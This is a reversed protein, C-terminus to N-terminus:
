KKVTACSHQFSVVEVEVQSVKLLIEICNFCSMIICKM